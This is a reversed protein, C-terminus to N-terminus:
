ETKEVFRQWESILTIYDPREAARIGILTGFRMQGIIKLSVRHQFIVSQYTLISDYYLLCPPIKM